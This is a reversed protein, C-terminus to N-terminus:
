QRTKAIHKGLTTHQNQTQQLFTAQVSFMAQLCFQAHHTNCVETPESTVHQWTNKPKSHKKQKNFLRTPKM